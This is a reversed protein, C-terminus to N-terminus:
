HSLSTACVFQSKHRWRHSLTSILCFPWPEMWMISFCSKLNNKSWRSYSCRNECENKPNWTKTVNQGHGFRMRGKWLHTTHRGHKEYLYYFQKNSLYWVPTCSPAAPQEHFRACWQRSCLRWRLSDLHQCFASSYGPFSCFSVSIWCSSTAQPSQM